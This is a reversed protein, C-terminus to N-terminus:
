NEVRTPTECQFAAGARSRTSATDSQLAARRVCRAMRAPARSDRQRSAARASQLGRKAAQRRMQLCARGRESREGESREAPALAQARRQQAESAPCASVRVPALFSLPGQGRQLANGRNARITILLYTCWPAHGRRAPTRRPRRGEGPLCILSERMRQPKDCRTVHGGIGTTNPATRRM